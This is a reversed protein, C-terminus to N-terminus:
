KESFSRSNNFITQLEAHSGVGAKAYINKIQTRVTERSVGRSDAIRAARLGKLLELLIESVARTLRWNRAMLEPSSSLEEDVGLLV